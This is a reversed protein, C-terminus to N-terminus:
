RVAVQARGTSQLPMSGPTVLVRDPGIVEVELIARSTANLVRIRDGDGGSDLAVGQDSLALGPVSLELMVRAGKQVLAPRILDATTLPQGAMAPRRLAQGVADGIHRVTDDRLAGARLRTTQLDSQQLVSGVPLRHVLVPLEVMEQLQGSLRMREIPIGTGIIALTATFRGSAGDYDVQEIAADTRGEAPVTPAAFGPLELDSDAPAGMGTLATRLAALVQERPLLRGPRDLVTRDASSTPRWDVGFQRAIAALQAAEVVIRAGPAPGPGLVRDARPGADDFLDSLRVVATELTTVNRLTAAAAPGATLLGHGPLGTGLLGAGLLGTALAPLFPKM